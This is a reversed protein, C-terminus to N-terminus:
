RIWTVLFQSNEIGLIEETFSKYSITPPLFDFNLEAKFDKEDRSGSFSTTDDDQPVLRRLYTHAEENSLPEGYLKGGSSNGGLNNQGGRGYLVELFQKSTLTPNSLDESTTFAEFAQRIQTKTIGFAPRHNVYLKVFDDFTMEEVLRGTEAYHKYSIEEMMTELESNTPYFGVARMLNPLQMISVKAGVIRTASTNEGQQIIQAYYFLDEMENVLWGDKGGDILSCFPALGEGGLREMTDVSRYNIKWMFVSHENEGLTFLYKGCDSSAMCTIKKPHALTAVIKYPNGDFPLVVLGIEKNTMFIMYGRNKGETQIRNTVHMRQVPEELTPGLFTKRIAKTYDNILRFKYESNATILFTEVGFEPYDAM